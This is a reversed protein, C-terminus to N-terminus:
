EYEIPGDQVVGITVGVRILEHGFTEDRGFALQVVVIYDSRETETTPLYKELDM